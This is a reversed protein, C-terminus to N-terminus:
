GHRQLKDIESRRAKVIREAEEIKLNHKRTLLEVSVEKLILYQNLTYVEHMTTMWVVMQNLKSRPVGNKKAKKYAEKMEQLTRWGDRMIQSPSYEEVKDSM